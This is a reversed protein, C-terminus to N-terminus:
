GGRSAPGEKRQTAAKQRYSWILWGCGLALRLSLESLNPVFYRRRQLAERPSFLSCFFRCSARLSGVNAIPGFVRSLLPQTDGVKRVRRKLIAEAAFVRDGVASLEMKSALYKNEEKRWVDAAARRCLAVCQGAAVCGCRAFLGCSVRVRAALPLALSRSLTATRSSHTM